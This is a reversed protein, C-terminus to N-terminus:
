SRFIAEVRAKMASKVAESRPVPTPTRGPTPSEGPTLPDTDVMIPTQRSPLLLSFSIISQPHTHSYCCFIHSAFLQCLSSSLSFPSSHLGRATAPAIFRQGLVERLPPLAAGLRWRTLKVEGLLSLVVDFRRGNLKVESKTQEASELAGNLYEDLLAPLLARRRLKCEFM